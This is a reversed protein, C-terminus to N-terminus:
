SQRVELEQKIERLAVCTIDGPALGASKEEILKDLVQLKEELTIPYQLLNRM